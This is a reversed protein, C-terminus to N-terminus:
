GSYFFIYSIAVRIILESCGFNKGAVCVGSLMCKLRIMNRNNTKFM